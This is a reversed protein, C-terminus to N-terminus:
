FNEGVLDKIAVVVKDKTSKEAKANRHDNYIKKNNVQKKQRRKRMLYM